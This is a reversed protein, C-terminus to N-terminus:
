GRLSGIGEVMDVQRARYVAVVLAFGIAMEIAMVALAVIVLVQGKPTGGAAYAWMGGTALIVGNVILEVGMMVMVFAQQSLAGWVGLGILAGAVLLITVLNM